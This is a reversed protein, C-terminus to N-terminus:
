WLQVRTCNAYPTLESDPLVTWFQEDWGICYLGEVSWDYKNLIRVHMLIKKKFRFKFM